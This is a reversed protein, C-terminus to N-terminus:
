KMNTAAYSQEQSWRRNSTPHMLFYAECLGDVLKACPFFAQDQQIRTTHLLEILSTIASADQWTLYTHQAWVLLIRYSVHTDEKGVYCLIHDFTCAYVKGDYEVFIISATFHFTISTGKIRYKTYKNKVQTVQSPNQQLKRKKRAPFSMEIVEKMIGSLSMLSHLIGDTEIEHLIAKM